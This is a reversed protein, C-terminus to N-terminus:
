SLKSETWLEQRGRAPTSAHPLTLTRHVIVRFEQLAHGAEEASVIQGQGDIFPM